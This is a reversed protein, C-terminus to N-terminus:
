QVCTSGPQARPTGQDSAHPQTDRAIIKGHENRIVHDCTGRARIARYTALIRGQELAEAKGPYSGVPESEGEIKNHWMGDRYYTEVGATM